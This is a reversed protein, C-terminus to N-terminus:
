KNNKILLDEQKLSQSLALGSSWDGCAYSETPRVTAGYNALNAAANDDRDMVLGCQECSYTRESLKLVKKKHGCCSCIKSSPFWRDAVILKKGHWESKYKLQRAIEGFSVDSVAQSLKRNKVMNSPALDEIVITDFRKVIDTTAQHIANNRINSIRYHLRAVRVQQKKRNKSSKQKRSLSRQIRKLRKLNSKLARPNEYETGDSLVLM